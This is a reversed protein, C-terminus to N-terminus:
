RGHRMSPAREAHHARRPTHLASAGWRLHSPTCGRARNPTPVWLGVSTSRASLSRRLERTLRSIERKARGIAERHSARETALAGELEEIRRRLAVPGGAGGGSPAVASTSSQQAIASQARVENKLRRVEAASDRRLEDYDRQLAALADRADVTEARLKDQQVSM